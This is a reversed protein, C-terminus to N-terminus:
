YSGNNEGIHPLNKVPTDAYGFVKAALSRTRSNPYYRNATTDKMIDLYTWYMALYRCPDFVTQNPHLNNYDCGAEEIRSTAREKFKKINEESLDVFKKYSNSWPLIEGDNACIGNWVLYSITICHWKRIAWYESNKM